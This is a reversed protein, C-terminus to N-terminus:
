QVGRNYALMATLPEIKPYTKAGYGGGLTPVIVRAQSQPVRFTEALQARVVYPTQTSSWCVVNKAQDVQAVCVHPEMTVHQNAPNSFNHEFIHDAAAFGVEVDGKRLKFHNCINSGDQARLIIDPFSEERRMVKEHVLPAGPRLAEEQDFVAPLEEYDVYILDLAADATDEDVAAVAVVADGVFRVKNIALIPQDRYVPGFRARVEPDEVLDSGKLITIVGPLREAESIDIEIIRAHAFPSRLVKAYVMGPLEFNLVYGIQGTIRERGDVYPMAKGVTM